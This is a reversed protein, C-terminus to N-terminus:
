PKLLGNKTDTFDVAIGPADSKFRSEMLPRFGENYEYGIFDRGLNAASILSTGSGLFPDVVLDGPASSLQVVRDVLTTPFIAPHIYKKGVSGAKRNINWFFGGNIDPNRYDAYKRLTDIDISGAPSKAFTLVYEHRDVINRSNTPIGSSKHWILIGKLRFGLDTCQRIFDLPMLCPKGDVRRININIWMTGDSRLIRYCESWVRAMRRLYGPYDEQGIQGKKFYDKLNWYPPSTVVTKVSDSAICDMNEATGWIVKAIHMEELRPEPPIVADTIGITRHSQSPNGPVCIHRLNGNGVMSELRHIVDTESLLIHRTIHGHGDDLTPIWVNGPDKGAPNYNKARHGWEVDKWIHKERIADKNFCMQGPDRCLWVIYRVNDARYTASIGPFVITNVYTLGMSCCLDIVDLFSRSVNGASDYENDVIIFLSDAGTLTPAQDRAIELAVDIVFGSIVISSM